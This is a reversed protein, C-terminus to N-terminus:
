KEEAWKRILKKSYSRAESVSLLKESKAKVVAKKQLAQYEKAPVLVYKKKDIVIETMEAAKYMLDLLFLLSACQWDGKDM